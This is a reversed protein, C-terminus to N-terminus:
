PPASYAQQASVSVRGLTAAAAPKALTLRDIGHHGALNRQQYSNVFNDNVLYATGDTILNLQDHFM